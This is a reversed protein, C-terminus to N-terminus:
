SVVARLLLQQYSDPIWKEKAIRNFAQNLEDQSYKTAKNKHFVIGYAIALFYITNAADHEMLNDSKRSLEKAWDRIKVLIELGTSSCILYEHISRNATTDPDSGILVKESLLRAFCQDRDETQEASGESPNEIGVKWLHSLREPNLRFLQKNEQM